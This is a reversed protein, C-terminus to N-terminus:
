RQPTSRDPPVGPTCGGVTLVLASNAREERIRRRQHHPRGSTPWTRASAEPIARPHKRPMNGRSSRIAAACGRARPSANDSCATRHGDHDHVPAMAPREPRVNAGPAWAICM